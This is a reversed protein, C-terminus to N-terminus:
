FPVRLVSLTGKEQPPPNAPNSHDSTACVGRGARVVREGISWWEMGGGSWQLATKHFDGDYPGPRYPAKISGLQGAGALLNMKQKPGIIFGDASVPDENAARLTI